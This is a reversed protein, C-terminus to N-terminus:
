GSSALSNSGHLDRMLRDRTIHAKSRINAIIDLLYENAPRLKGSEHQPHRDPHLADHSVVHHDHGSPSLHGDRAM